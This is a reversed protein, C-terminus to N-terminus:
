RAAQQAGPHRPNVRTEWAPPQYGSLVRCEGAHRARMAECRGRVEGPSPRRRTEVWDALAALAAPYLAASLKNHEGDDVFVQLLLHATGARQLTARYAAQHEVFATTDAIGHLTLVPVGIAGTPDGDAVLRALAEADPAIRPVRANFALDDSTGRYRVQANGFASRGDMMGWAIDAFVFTAWNLHGPIAWETIGSAAVLDRLATRQRPSRQPPALDAGTCALYRAMVEERAMTAGRALGLTVPYQTEGPRPHTGCVAQFAARLDVRMDYARSPGALVASTLLAAAWPRRGAEDRANLVEIARAGVAGGWSQGHLVSLRPPGFAAEAARTAALTDEAARLVGFGARRRSTSAWAWGEALFEAYRILDEDTTDIAPPAMRPGGFIHTVLGGHWNAPRALLLFAGEADRGRLCTTGAPLGHPCAAEAMEAAAPPTAALLLLALWALWRRTM